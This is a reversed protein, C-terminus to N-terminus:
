LRDSELPTSALHCSTLHSIMVGLWDGICYHIRCARVETYGWYLYDHLMPFDETLTVHTFSEHGGLKLRAAGKYSDNM